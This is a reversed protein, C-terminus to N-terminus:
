AYMCVFYCLTIGKFSGLTTLYGFAQPGCCLGKLSIGLSVACIRSNEEFLPQKIHYHQCYM